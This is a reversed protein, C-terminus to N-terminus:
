TVFKLRIGRMEFEKFKSDHSIELSDESKRLTQFKRMTGPAGCSNYTSVM